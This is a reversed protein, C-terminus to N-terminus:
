GFVKEELFENRFKGKPDHKQALARFDAMRVYVENLQRRSITFLKGWHPRPSFPALAKEIKPMLANVAETEQKWTFHFSVSKRKHAMSLWLDDAAISRIESIQLHPGIEKSMSAIAKFADMAKEFPVFYETQLEKGSSPTFGMKFHPLREYWPGVAGLQPTCHEAGLAAIPHMERTAAIANFFTAPQSTSVGKEEKFKMWVENISDGQYDTFLSVSYAASMITEFNVELDSVPLKEYVWQFVNYTPEISLIVSTVIGFAGLGVIAGYFEDGDKKSLAIRQGESNIFELGEVVSALNGNNVGSGHTATAITGAVSIHPLSALNHLAYGKEHLLPALEGYKIGAEVKVTKNKEDIAIVKKFNDMSVLQHRSDAIRNFCHRTGQAKLHETKKVFAALEEVNAPKYVNATSFTINGAWNQPAPEATKREDCGLLSGGALVTASRIFELRDM